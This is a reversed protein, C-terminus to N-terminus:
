AGAVLVPAAASQGEGGINNANDLIKYSMEPPVVAAIFKLLNSQDGDTELLENFLADYAASCTFDHAMEANKRFYKGDASKEGYSKVIFLKFFDMLAPMDRVNLIHELHASFGGQISMEMETLEAKTLNFYYDESIKNGNFDTYPINKKLM